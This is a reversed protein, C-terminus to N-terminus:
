QPVRRRDGSQRPASEPTIVVAGPAHLRPRMSGPPPLVVSQMVPGKCPVIAGKPIVVIGDPAVFFREGDARRDEGIVTGGEITVYKDCIVRRLRANRGVSCGQMLICEDVEAYSHVFVNHFVVSNRVLSGSIITGNAIISQVATGRREDDFVFKVPPYPLFASRIPWEYNYLNLMPDIGRLDMNAEFYAEVAGVDRWYGREREREGPVVNDAFNYAYVPHGGIMRPIVNRGFDHESSVDGADDRLVEELRHPDFLYNGMSVLTKDPMGPIPKPDALKEEFGIIRQRADIQIIGFKGAAEERDYPLTAVTCAAERELHFAMMQRVDMKYIHDGGFVAVQKPAEDQLIGLNQYIADATGRYWGSGDVGQRAPIADVYHETMSGFNFGRALHILLSNSLYQTLVKIRFFGSNIFNSLAFDIIRYQAGFPVAPKARDRTLPHLREGKGGALIMVLTDIM